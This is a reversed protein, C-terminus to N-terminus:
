RRSAPATSPQALSLFTAVAAPRAADRLELTCGVRYLVADGRAEADVLTAALRVDRGTPVPALFRVSELGYNLRAGADVVRLLTPILAPALSLTLMGHAITGGAPAEARAREVDVHIWQRDGTATAFADIRTQDLTVWASHGLDLERAALLEALRLAVPTPLSASVPGM